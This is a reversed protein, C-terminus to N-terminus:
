ANYKIYFPGCYDVGAYSFPRVYPTLRDLPLQGILPIAPKAKNYACVPYERKTSKLLSRARPVWFRQRMENITLCYTQHHLQCHYQKMILRTVHHNQPLIVPRRATIPLCYASDIRGNVKLLCDSDLFATLQYIASSKSLSTKRKIANIEEAFSDNQVKRLVTKEDNALEIANLEGSQRTGSIANYFFRFIWAVVEGSNSLLLVRGVCEESACHDSTLEPLEQPWHSTDQYLFGPATFWRSQTESEFSSCARRVEDAVNLTTPIWRWQDASPVGLIETVRYAVFQKFNRNTSRIWLIVTKSDSWFTTNDVRFDHCRELSEKLCCGLVAAQLELLPITM